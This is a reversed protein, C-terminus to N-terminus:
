SSLAARLVEGVAQHEVLFGDHGVISDIVKVDASAIDLLEALEMQLRLPYLRDSSIGAITVSAQVRSLAAKMGRYGRGLDYHNMAESLVVYSNADFRGLLKDGQYGLYSEVAYRGGDFPVELGQPANAFRQQLELETRYSLHGIGRALVLGAAPGQPVDYYDGGFFYPDLRIAQNQLCCLAIQEASSVAATAFVIVREAKDPLDVAWQLARMGGMSGGTVAYWTDIGLEVALAREVAVQDRITVVPFRSGYPKADDAWSSPGTTGQCGGLVNPCVVFYRDTDIPAGPGVMPGWWGPSPHGPEVPGRVHSDGTLAHLVLIANSAKADLKGWTEYAVTVESLHGGAELSLGGTQARGSKFLSTFSRQGPPDGPRWAGTIPADVM